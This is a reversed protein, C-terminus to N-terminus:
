TPIAYRLILTDGPIISVMVRVAQNTATYGTRIHEAVPTGTLINLKMIEAPTPMRTIIEDIDYVQEYGAEKLIDERTTDEPEALETGRVIREDFYDDSIIAPKGDIYRIHRRVVCVDTEPNLKLRRAIDAPPKIKEVNLDQRTPDHGQSEIDTEWADSTTLVTHDPREFESLHWLLRRTSRVIRGRRPRVVVLGERELAQLATRATQRNVGYERALEPESPLLAGPGRTGDSIQRRLTDTIQRTVSQDQTM